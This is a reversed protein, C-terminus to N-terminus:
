DVFLIGTLKTTPRSALCCAMMNVEDITLIHRTIMEGIFILLNPPSTNEPEPIESKIVGIYGLIYSLVDNFNVLNNRSVITHVIEACSIYQDCQTREPEDEAENKGLNDSFKNALRVYLNAILKADHLLHQINELCMFYMSDEFKDGKETVNDTGSDVGDEDDIDLLDVVVNKDYGSRGISHSLIDVPGSRSVDSECTSVSDSFSEKGPFYEESATSNVHHCEDHDDVIVDNPYVTPQNQLSEINDIIDYEEEWRLNDEEPDESFAHNTLGTRKEDNSPDVASSVDNTNLSQKFISSKGFRKFFFTKKKSTDNAQPTQFSSNLVSGVRYHHTMSPVRKYDVPNSTCLSDSPTIDKGVEKSKTSIENKTSTDFTKLVSGVRYHHTLSPVRKYDAAKPSGNVISNDMMKGGSNNDVKNQDGKSSDRSESKKRLDSSSKSFYKTLPNVKNFASKSKEEPYKMEPSIYDTSRSMQRSLHNKRMRDNDSYLDGLSGHKPLVYVHSKEKGIENSIFCQVVKDRQMIRNDISGVSNESMTQKCKTDNNDMM